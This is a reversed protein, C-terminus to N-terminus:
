QYKQSLWRESIQNKLFLFRGTAEGSVGFADRLLSAKKM